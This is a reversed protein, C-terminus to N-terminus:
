AQSLTEAKLDKLLDDSIASFPVWCKGPGPNCEINANAVM